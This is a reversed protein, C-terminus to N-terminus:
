VLKEAHSFIVSPTGSPDTKPGSSNRIYTLSRGLVMFSLVTGINNM